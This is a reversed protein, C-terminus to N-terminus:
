VKPKIKISKRQTRKNCPEVPWLSLLKHQLVESRKSIKNYVKRWFFNHYSAFFRAMPFHCQQAEQRNANQRYFYSWANECRLSEKVNSKLMWSRAYMMKMRERM